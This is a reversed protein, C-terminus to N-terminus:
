FEVEIKVPKLNKDLWIEVKDPRVSDNNVISGSTNSITVDDCEATNIDVDIDDYDDPGNPDANKYKKISISFPQVKITSVGIDKIGWSRYDIVIRYSVNTTINQSNIDMTDYFGEPFNLDVEVNQALFTDDSDNIQGYAEKLLNFDKNNM